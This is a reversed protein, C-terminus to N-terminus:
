LRNYKRFKGFASLLLLLCLLGVLEFGITRRTSTTSYDSLDQEMNFVYFRYHIRDSIQPTAPNDELWHEVLSGNLSYGEITQFIQQRPYGEWAGEPVLKPNYYSTNDLTKLSTLFNSFKKKWEYPAFEVNTKLNYRPRPLTTEPAIYYYFEHNLEEKLNNSLIEGAIFGDGIIFDVQVELPDSELHDIESRSVNRETTLTEIENSIRQLIGTISETDSDQLLKQLELLESKLTSVTTQQTSNLSLGELYSLESNYKSWLQLVISNLILDRELQDFHKSRSYYTMTSVTTADLIWSNKEEEVYFADHPHPLGICHGLEHIVTTTLGDRPKAPDGGYFYANENRGNICWKSIESHESTIHGLGGVPGYEPYYLSKGNMFLIMAPFILDYSDITYNTIISYIIDDITTFFEPTTMLYSDNETNNAALESFVSNDNWDFWFLDTTWEILPFSEDMVEEVIDPRIIWNSINSSAYGNKTLDDMVIMPVWAEFPPDLKKAYDVSLRITSLRQFMASFLDELSLKQDNMTTFDTFNEEFPLLEHEWVNQVWDSFWEFAGLDIFWNRTDEAYGRLPLSDPIDSFSFFPLWYDSSNL